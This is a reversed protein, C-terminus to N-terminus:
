PKEPDDPHVRSISRALSVYQRALCGHDAGCVRCERPFLWSRAVPSLAAVADARDLIAPACFVREIEAITLNPTRGSLCRAREPNPHMWPGDVCLVPQTAPRSLTSM